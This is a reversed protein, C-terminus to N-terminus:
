PPTKRILLFSLPGSHMCQPNAGNKDGFSVYLFSIGTLSSLLADLHNFTEQLAPM